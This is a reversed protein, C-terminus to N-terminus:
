IDAVTLNVAICLGFSITAAAKIRLPYDMEYKVVKYIKALFKCKCIKLFWFKMFGGIYPM